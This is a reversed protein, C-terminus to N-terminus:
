KTQNNHRTHIKMRQKNQSTFNTKQHNHKKKIIRSGGLDVRVSVRKGVVVSKRDLKGARATVQHEPAVLAGRHSTQRSQIDDHEHQDTAARHEPKCTPQHLDSSCVDSSWDSIRMEYATKQKFFFFYCVVLLVCNLVRWFFGCVVVFCRMM